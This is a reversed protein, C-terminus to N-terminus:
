VGRVLLFLQLALRATKASDVLRQSNGDPQPGLRSVCLLIRDSALCGLEGVPPLSCAAQRESRISIPIGTMEHARDAIGVVGFALFIPATHKAPLDGPSPNQRVLFNFACAM